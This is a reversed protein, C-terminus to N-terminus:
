VKKFDFIVGCSRGAIRALETYSVPSDETNRIKNGVSTKAAINDVVCEAGAQKELVSGIVSNCIKSDVSPKAAAIKKDVSIPCRETSEAM